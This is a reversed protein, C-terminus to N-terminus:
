MEPTSHFVKGQIPAEAEAKEEEAAPQVFSDVRPLSWIGHVYGKLTFNIESTTLFSLITESCLRQATSLLIFNKLTIAGSDQGKERAHSFLKLVISARWINEDEDTFSQQIGHRIDGQFIVLRMHKPDICTSKETPESEYNQLITGMGHSEQLTESALYLILTFLFPHDPEGNEFKNLPYAEKPNFAKHVTFFNNKSPNYDTHLGALMSTKSVSEMYNAAICLTNMLNKYRIAFPQTAIILGTEKSVWSLFNYVKQLFNPPSELAQLCTQTNFGLTPREGALKSQSTSYIHGDFPKSAVWTRSERSENETFLGDITFVPKGGVQFFQTNARSMREKSGSPNQDFVFIIKHEDPVYQALAPHLVVTKDRSLQASESRKEDCPEAASLHTTHNGRTAGQNQALLDKTKSNEESKKM